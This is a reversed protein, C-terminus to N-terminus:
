TGDCRRRPLPFLRRRIPAAALLRFSTSTSKGSPQTIATVPTDPAPLDVSTFRMRYGASDRANYPDRSDGPAYLAREPISCRSLTISLSWFGIPRVGRLLGAVYVFTNSQM